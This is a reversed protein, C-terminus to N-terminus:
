RRVGALMRMYALAEGHRPSCGASGHRRGQLEPHWVRPGPGVSAAGGHGRRRYDFLSAHINNEVFFCIPLKWAAALTSTELTLGINVAGDGIYTVSVADTGAPEGMRFGAQPM